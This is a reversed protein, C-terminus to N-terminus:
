GRQGRVETRDRVHHYVVFKRRFRRLFFLFPYCVLLYSPMACVLRAIQVIDVETTNKSRVFRQREGM